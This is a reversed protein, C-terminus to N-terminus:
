GHVDLWDVLAAHFEVPKEAHLWHGAGSITQFSAAPFVERVRPELLPTMYDSNGGSLFLSPGRFPDSDLTGPWGLLDPMGAQLAALNLRWRATGADIMLNQLIFLRLAPDPIADALLPDADSRRKVAGLDVARMAVIFPLHSHAYSVPAIDA